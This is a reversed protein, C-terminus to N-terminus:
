QFWPASILPNRAGLTSTPIVTEASAKFLLGYVAKKNWHAIVGGRQGSPDVVGDLRTNRREHPKGPRQVTVDIGHAIGDFQRPAVILRLAM